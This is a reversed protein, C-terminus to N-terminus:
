FTLTLGGTITRANPYGGYDIGTFRDNDPGYSTAEPDYGKYKTFTMLNTANVFVSASVFKLLSKPLSYSLSVNKIRLFDGKELFRSSQVINQNTPSFAPIDSTENVGPIYRDKIDSFIAEKVVRDYTMGQAYTINWKEYGFVGQLFINLTLNKYSFTNNWGLSYKPLGNGIIKYDAEGDGDEDVYKSDGPVKGFTAAEAAESPKWTGLYEVGWYSGMPQGVILAMESQSFAGTLNNSFWLSDAEALAVVKNKVYSYNLTTRWTFDAADVPVANISFEVGKNSVEGVNKNITGGGNYM